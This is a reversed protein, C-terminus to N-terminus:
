FKFVLKSFIRMGNYGMQVGDWPGGTENDGAWGKAQPNVAFDPHVNFINDAGVIWNTKKSVQVNLYLDTAVKGSYNFIEPLMMNGNADSPVQPNTGDGNYGFGTLALSGFYTLRTGLSVKNKTYDFSMSYKSKPASAKLFYKERDNFFTNANYETTSLAAPVHIADITINQFNAVWLIKFREKTSIKKQYDIVFDVGTNTTNVANAFFQATSVGLANLKSTLATPLSPDSASFLGSLVVRDKMKISYGDVTFTLGKAPKWSFGLSMNTSTEQKLKPIGALATIPDDNNAVRSQVLQGNSFSTLTNSRFLM